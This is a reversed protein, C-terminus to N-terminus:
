GDTNGVPFRVGNILFDTGSFGVTFSQESSSMFSQELQLSSGGASFIVGNSGNQLQASVANAKNQADILTIVIRGFASSGPVSSVNMSFEAALTNAYMWRMASANDAA